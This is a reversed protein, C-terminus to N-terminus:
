RRVEVLYLLCYRGKLAELSFASVYGCVCIVLLEHQLPPRRMVALIQAAEAAVIETLHVM